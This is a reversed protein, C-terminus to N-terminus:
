QKGASVKKYKTDGPLTTLDPVGARKISCLVCVIFMASTLVCLVSRLLGHLRCGTM